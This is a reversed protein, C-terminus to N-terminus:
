KLKVATGYALIESSNKMVSSADFRMAIIADAGMEIAHKVMRNFAEDRSQSILETFTGIEGGVISKFGAMIDRGINRSRVTNGRVIGIVEKVKRNPIDNMSTVIIKKSMGTSVVEKGGVDIRDEKKNFLIIMGFIFSIIGLVFYSYKGVSNLIFMLAVFGAGFLVLIIGTIIRSLNKM